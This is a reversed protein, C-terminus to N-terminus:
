FRILDEPFRMPKTLKPSTFLSMVSNSAEHFSSMLKFFADGIRAVCMNTTISCAILFGDNVKGITWYGEVFKVPLESYGITHSM